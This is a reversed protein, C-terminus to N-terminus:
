SQSMCSIVIYLGALLQVYKMKITSYKYAQHHSEHASVHLETSVTIKLLYCYSTNWQTHNVILQVLYVM